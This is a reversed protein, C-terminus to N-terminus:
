FNPGFIVDSNRAVSYVAYPSIYNYERVIISSMAPAIEDFIKKGHRALEVYWCDFRLEITEKDSSSKQWNLTEKLVSLDLPADYGMGNFRFGRKLYQIESMPKVNLITGTKSEDTYVYGFQEKMVKQLSLSGALEEYEKPFGTVHDDGFTNWRFSDRISSAPIGQSLWCSVLMISNVYSNMVATAPQGSPNKGNFEYINGNRDVHMSNNIDLFLVRRVVKDEHTSSSSYYLEACELFKYNVQPALKCDFSEYDGAGHSYNDNPHLYHHLATWEEAVPNIGVSIGNQIKNACLHRIFDGFYMRISILLQIPCAMFQRTKGAEVKAHPRREDKLCDMYIHELREGRKASNVVNEVMSRLEAINSSSFDVKGEAGLWKKKGNRVSLNHPYGASTSRDISNCYDVGDVGSVAEEFSWLRPEWPAPVNNRLIRENVILSASDLLSMDVKVPDSCYKFQAKKAPDVREGKDNVFPHLMAPKTTVDFVKGHIRTPEIKTKTAFKPAQAKRLVSFGEYNFGLGTEFQEKIILDEDLAEVCCEADERSLFVGLCAKRGMSFMSGATHFGLITPSGFRKDITVLASGCDGAQSSAIYQLQNSKFEGMYTTSYGFKVYPELILLQESRIVPLFCEFGDGFKVASCSVLRDVIDAHERIGPISMAQLDYDFEYTYMHQTWDFKFQPVGVMDTLTAVLNEDDAFTSDILVNYHAPFVCTRGRLFTVNGVNKGNISLTYMNRRVIKILFDHDSNNGEGHPLKALKTKSFAARASRRVSRPVKRQLKSNHNTKGDSEGRSSFLKMLVQTGTFCTTVFAMVSAIIKWNEPFMKQPTAVSEFLRKITVDLEECEHFEEDESESGGEAFYTKKVYQHYALMADGSNNLEKYKTECCKIFEHFNRTKGGEKPWGTTFDWDIFEIVDLALFTSPDDKNFPYKERVKDLDLRREWPNDVTSNVCFDLKPVQLVALDFRRTVAENCVISNFKLTNRNTTCYLFRPNAYNKQKDAISAFHLHYPATNKLRIIEFADPNDGGAVDKKQGFDDFVIAEHSPRYGDWYENENARFFLFENHNTMFESLRDKPLVRALLALLIPTTFSSKGVGSPGTICIALPEVRPGNNPNISGECHQVIPKLLRLLYLVKEKDDRDTSERYYREVADNLIYLEQAVHYHSAGPVDFKKKIEYFTKFFIDLKSDGSLVPISTNFWTNIAVTLDKILDFIWTFGGKILKKEEGLRAVIKSFGIFDLEGVYKGITDKYLLLLFANDIVGEPSFTFFMSALEGLLKKGAEASYKYVLAYIFKFYDYVFGFRDKAWEVIEKVKSLTPSILDVKLETGDRMIERLSNISSEIFEKSTDDIGFDFVGEPIFAHPNVGHRMKKKLTKNKEELRQIHRSVSSSRKPRSAREPELKEFNKLCRIIFDNNPGPNLEIGTLYGQNNPRELKVCLTRFFDIDELSLEINTQSTYHKIAIDMRDHLMKYVVMGARERYAEILDDYLDVIEELIESTPKPNVLPLIIVQYQAFIYDYNYTAATVEKNVAALLTNEYKIYNSLMEFERNKLVYRRGKDFTDEYEYPRGMNHACFTFKARVPFDEYAQFDEGDDDYLLEDDVLIEVDAAFQELNTLYNAFEVVRKMPPAPVPGGISVVDFTDEEPSLTILDFESMYESRPSLTQESHYATRLEPQFDIQSSIQPLISATVGEGAIIVNGENIINEVNGFQVELSQANM